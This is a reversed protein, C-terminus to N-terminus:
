HAATGYVKIWHTRVLPQVTRGNASSVIANSQQKPMHCDVCNNVISAGLKVHMGCSEPKHCGLCQKSFAAADRQVVHVNHCTACTMQSSQFCRSRELLAVQNGHVDIRGEPDPRQLEMHDKLPRGPVYSFAPALPRVGIGAHCLACVEIQRERALKAPNVIATEADPGPPPIESASPTSAYRAAHEKGPGHCIECSIGPVFSEKRKYLNETLAGASEIYGAHCELCRPPVPRAFDAYDDPYGPSNVWQDIDTWYSVPLEYLRLGKWFLYTQGKRGSGIVLDIRERHSAPHASGEVSTEYFGDARADMRYFLGPNATELVNKKDSFHGLVSKEAPLRSTFHHATTLYTEYKRHCSICKEDGVYNDRTVSHTSQPQALCSVACCVAFTCIARIRSLSKV